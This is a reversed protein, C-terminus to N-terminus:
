LIFITLNFFYIYRENKTSALSYVSARYVCLFSTFFIIGSWSRYKFMCMPPFHIKPQWINIQNHINQKLINNLCDHVSIFQSSFIYLYFEHQGTKYNDLVVRGSNVYKLTLNRKQTTVTQVYNVMTEFSCLAELKELKVEAYPLMKNKWSPPAQRVLGRFTSVRSVRIHKNDTITVGCVPTRNDKM